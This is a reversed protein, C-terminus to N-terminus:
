LKRKADVTASGGECTINDESVYEDWTFTLKLRDKTMTGSVTVPANGGTDTLAFESGEVAWRSTPKFRAPGNANYGGDLVHDSPARESGRGCSGQLLGDVLVVSTGAQPPYRAKFAKGQSTTGEFNWPKSATPKQRLKCAKSRKQKATKCKVAAASAGDSGAAVGQLGTALLVAVATLVIGLSGLRKM